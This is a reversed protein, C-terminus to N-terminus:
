PKTQAPKVAYIAVGQTGFKASSSESPSGSFADWRRESFRVDVFGAAEIM